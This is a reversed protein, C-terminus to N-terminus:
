RRQGEPGGVSALFAEVEAREPIAEAAGPRTVKLAAAATAITMAERISAPDRDICALFAGLFTDGAATTDVPDVIMAPMHVSSEGSTHTAGKKGATVLRALGPRQSLGEPEVARLQGDEIENLAVLDLFPLIPFIAAPEFPAAALAVKMGRSKAREAAFSTGNTENQILLWDGAAMTDIAAAIEIESFTINAGPSLVIANEGDEAVMVIAQGTSQTDRRSLHRIDVGAQCLIEDIWTDGRSIAGFHRVSGGMRGIAISQNAGKGGLGITESFAAITEGPHPLAPLRFSRDINISGFNLIPM